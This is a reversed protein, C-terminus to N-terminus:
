VRKLTITVEFGDVDISTNRTPATMETIIVNYSNGYYDIYVYSVYSGEYFGLLTDKDVKSMAKWTLTSYKDTLTPTWHQTITKTLTVVDVVKKVAHMDTAETPNTTPSWGNISILQFGSEYPM